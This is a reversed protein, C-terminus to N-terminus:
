EGVEAPLQLYARLEAADLERACAGILARALPDSHDGPAFLGKFLHWLRHQAVSEQAVWLRERRDPPFATGLRHDVALEFEARRLRLDEDRDPMAPGDAYLAVIRREYQEASM